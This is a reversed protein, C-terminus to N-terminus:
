IEMAIGADENKLADTTHSGLTENELTGGEIESSDTPGEQTFGQVGINMETEAATFNHGEPTAERTVEAVTETIGEPSLTLTTEAVKFTISEPTMTISAGVGPAGVSMKLLEPGELELTVGGIPPGSALKVIGTEGVTLGAKGAEEMNNEVYAIANGASVAISETALLMMSSEAGTAQISTVLGSSSLNMNGTVKVTYDGVHLNGDSM